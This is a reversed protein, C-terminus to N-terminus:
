EVIVKIVSDIKNLFYREEQESEFSFFVMGFSKNSGDFSYVYDGPLASYDEFILHKKLSEDMEISKLFGNKNSHIVYAFSPRRFKIEPLDFDIGMTSKIILDFYDFGYAEQELEAIRNGGGRPSVEMLYQLGNTCLRSEVNLITTKIGLLNVLRQLEKNLYKQSSQPLTSPFVTGCPNYINTTNLDFLQDSHCPFVLKGNYVFPDASSSYGKKELFQEIIITGSFSNKKALLFADHLGDSNVLKTVGKSGASDTPKVILPYTFADMDRVLEDYNSYSYFWPVNFGHERLFKRFKKKDQLIKVSEYPAPSPLNLKNAVYAATVVGPDCAFSSIGDIKLASAVELVKEKDIISVNVYQDSYKHAYNSPLYDCTIVYIGLSHAKKILPIIFKGGGLIM